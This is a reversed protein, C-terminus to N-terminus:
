RHYRETFSRIISATAGWIYYSGYPIAFYGRYQKGSSIRHEKMNKRNLLFVLPVEFIEAVENTNIKFEATNEMIGIFPHILYKSVTEHPRLMGITEIQSEKLGIEEEVERLGAKLMSKDNPELSGGPFSIQGPHTSLNDARKTFIVSVDREKQRLLMFVIAIKKHQGKLRQVCRSSLDFDSSPESLFVRKMEELVPPNFRLKVAELLSSKIL